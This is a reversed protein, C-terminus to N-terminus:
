EDSWWVDPFFGIRDGYIPTDSPFKLYSKHAIRSPGNHYIPIVYRGATLVRDMARVADLFQQRTKATNLADILADMAPSNLGMLNRTGEVDAYEQGWYLRQENGPSLSLSRAFPTMDFDLAKRREAYQAGDVLDVEVSIGLRSLADMYLEVISLYEQAGQRLLIKFSV